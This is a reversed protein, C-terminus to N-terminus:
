AARAGLSVVGGTTGAVAALGVDVPNISIGSVSQGAINGLAGSAGGVVLTGAAGFTFGAIM